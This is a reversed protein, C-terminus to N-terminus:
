CTCYEAREGYHLNPSTAFVFPESRYCTCYQVRVEYIYTQVSLIQMLPDCFTERKHIIVLFSALSHHKLSLGMTICLIDQIEFGCIM